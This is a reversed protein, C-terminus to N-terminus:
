GDIFFDELMQPAIAKLPRSIMYFFLFFGGTWSWNYTTLTEEFDM